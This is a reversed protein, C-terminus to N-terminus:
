CLDFRFATATLVVLGTVEHDAVAWVYTEFMKM